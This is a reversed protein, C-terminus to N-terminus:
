SQLNGQLAPPMKRGNLMRGIWTSRVGYHYSVLLAACSVLNILVFKVLWHVDALMLATQLAMVLPLHAIYMWYSADSLYRVITSPKNLYKVGVGVFALTWCILALSYAAAYTLKITQMPITDLSDGARLFHFYVLAGTLGWIFNGLWRQALLDLLHRQRDLMWGLMFVYGYIFLPTAPPILTYAPTPVGWVQVWGQTLCFSAAIPLALLMPGVATSVAWCFLRDAWALVQAASDIALLISRGALVIAYLWLLLYLFWLHMFNPGRKVMWPPLSSVWQGGNQRALVWLVVAIILAFCVVWWLVLPAAIRAVRNRWFGSFGLRHFLARTLLGAILFFVSMRFIHIVFMVMMLTTSKHVDSIPWLELSIGPVFSLCAHLVIGLLLASARIADLAHLRPPV